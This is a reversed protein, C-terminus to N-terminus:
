GKRYESPSQRTAQKFVTAFYSAEAFGTAEAVESIKMSTNKLLVKAKDLRIKTVYNTFSEGTEKKFVNSFYAPSLYVHEAAQALSCDWMYHEEIYQIAKDLWSDNREALWRSLSDSFQAAQAELWRVIDAPEGYAHLERVRGVLDLHDSPVGLEKRETEQFAAAATLAIMKMEGVAKGHLGNVLTQMYNKLESPKALLIVSMLENMIMRIQEYNLESVHDRAQEPWAPSVVYPYTERYHQRGAEYLEHLSDRRAVAGCDYTHLIIGLYRAVAESMAAALAPGGAAAEGALFLMYQDYEVSILRGSLGSGDLLEEMINTVSFQLLRLDTERYSKHAPFYDVVRLYWAIQGACDLAPLEAPQLPLRLLLSRLAFEELRLKESEEQELRRKGSHLQQYAEMLVACIEEEPCPKLLFEKVGYRVASQAYAFDKHGTLIIVMLGPRHAHIYEALQLGDMVPMRIDTVVLDPSLREIAQQAELGNAAEGVVEWHLPNSEVLSRLGARILDEDEVILLKGKMDGEGKNLLKSSM